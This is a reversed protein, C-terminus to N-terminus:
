TDTLNEGAHRLGAPLSGSGVHVAGEFVGTREHLGAGRGAGMRLMRWPVSEDNGHQRRLMGVNQQHHAHMTDGSGASGTDGSLHKTPYDFSRELSAAGRM